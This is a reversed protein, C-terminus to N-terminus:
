GPMGSRVSSVQVRRCSQIPDRLVFRRTTGPATIRVKPYTRCPRGVHGAGGSNYNIEFWATSGSDLTVLEPPHPESEGPMQATNVARGGPVAQGFRNALEFRPYGKLTCPSYGKNTFAYKASRVGGMAADDFETLHKVSLRSDRCRSLLTGHGTQIEGSPKANTQGQALLSGAVVLTILLLTRRM